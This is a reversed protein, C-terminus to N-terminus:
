IPHGLTGCGLCQLRRGVVPHKLVIYTGYWGICVIGRLFEPCGAMQVTLKWVTSTRSNPTCADLNELEVEASIHETFFATLRGIDMFRTVNYLLVVYETVKTLRTGDSGVQRNWVSGACPAHPNRLRYM